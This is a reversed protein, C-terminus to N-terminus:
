LIRDKSLLFCLSGYKTGDGEHISCGGGGGEGQKGEGSSRVSELSIKRFATRWEPKPYIKKRSSDINWSVKQIMIPPVVLTIM